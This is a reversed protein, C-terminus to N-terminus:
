IVAGVKIEFIELYVQIGKANKDSLLASCWIWYYLSGDSCFAVTTCPGAEVYSEPKAITKCPQLLVNMHWM